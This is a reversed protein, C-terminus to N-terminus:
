DRPRHRTGLGPTIFVATASDAVDATHWTGPENVACQGPGLTVSATTGDPREQHLTISGATCLVIETGNPHMEWMPWSESFTMMAVLRGEAGDGAHRALYSEYWSMDGDFAPEVAVSAGLGLHLPTRSLDIATM